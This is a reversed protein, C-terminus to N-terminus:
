GVQPTLRVGLGELKIFLLAETKLFYEGHVTLLITGSDTGATNTAQCLYNGRDATTVPSILLSNNIAQQVRTDGSMPLSTSGFLWTVTPVPDGSTRCDLVASFGQVAVVASFM